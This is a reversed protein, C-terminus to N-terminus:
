LTLRPSLCFYEPPISSRSNGSSIFYTYESIRSSKNSKNGNSIYYKKNGNTVNLYRNRSQVVGMLYADTYVIYGQKADDARCQCHNQSMLWHSVVCKNRAEDNESYSNRLEDNKGRLNTVKNTNAM